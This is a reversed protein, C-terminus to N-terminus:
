PRLAVTAAGSALGLDVAAPSPHLVMLVLNDNGMRFAGGLDTAARGVDRYTGAFDGSRQLGYVSGSVEILAPEPGQAGLGAITFRIRRGNTELVGRAPGGGRPITMRVTGDAPTGPSLRFLAAAPGQGQAPAAGPEPVADPPPPAEPLGAACGGILLAVLCSGLLARRPQDTMDCGQADPGALIPM